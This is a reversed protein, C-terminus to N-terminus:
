WYKEKYKSMLFALLFTVGTVVAMTGAISVDWICALQYGLLANVGGIAPALVLLKRLSYCFLSATVAPGVMFAVVLVSGVAEFATVATFSVLTMLGYHLAVPCFGLLGALIPDFTSLQLEKYGVTVALVNVLLMVGSTYIAKAGVDVGMLVLRDFPAFALEGLLVADTDLHVDGAYCTILVIAVAFLMPFVVGMAADEGMLGTGNLWQCLWVTVVGMATAGVMLLPSSLDRTVFFALVIGLLITHTIADALMAKHALVLFSGILGCGMAVLVAILQIELGASM